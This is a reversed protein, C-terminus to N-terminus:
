EINIHAKQSASAEPQPTGPNEEPGETADHAPTLCPSPSANWPKTVPDLYRGRSLEERRQAWIDMIKPVECAPIGMEAAEEDAKLQIDM